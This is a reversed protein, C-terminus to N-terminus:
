TLFNLNLFFEHINIGIIIREKNELGAFASVKSVLPALSKKKVRSDPVV